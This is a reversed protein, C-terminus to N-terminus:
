RCGKEKALPDHLGSQNVLYFSHFDLSWFAHFANMVDHKIIPWALQFFIGTFGDSGSVKEPPLDRIM